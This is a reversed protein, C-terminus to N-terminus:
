CEQEYRRELRTKRPKILWVFNASHAMNHNEGNYSIKLETIDIVVSVELQGLQLDWENFYLFENSDFKL